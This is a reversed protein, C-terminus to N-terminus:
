PTLFRDIKQRSSQETGDIVRAYVRLLVAVSHGAWKAVTTHHVGAALWSSVAAHRLDYPTRALPGRGAEKTLAKGRARQWVRWCQKSDVPAESRYSSFLRGDSTTGFSALHEHLIASLEPACPVTRGVGSARHKLSRAENRQGSDTWNQHVDPTAQALHLDGWEYRYEGTDADRVPAPLSLNEKRINSAEEPRLAAFYMLAFFAYLRPGSCEQNQVERLMTRAQVPNPVARTDVEKVGAAKQPAKIKSLPNEDMIEQEVAYDLAGSLALRRLRVTDPAAERGNRNRTISHLVTRLVKPQALEGVNRTNDALWRGAAEAEATSFTGRTKPNMHVRVAERLAPESPQDVDPKLMGYTVAALSQATTRRHKPSMGPWREALYNSAHELWPVDALRRSYSVPLGDSCRFAEGRKAATLLESRFSDALARSKFPQRFPQQRRGVRWRVRYRTNKGKYVEIEYVRVDYSTHTM